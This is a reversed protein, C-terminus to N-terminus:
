RGTPASSLPFVTLAMVRYFRVEGGGLYISQVDFFGLEIDRRTPRKPIERVNARTERMDRQDHYDHGVNNGM